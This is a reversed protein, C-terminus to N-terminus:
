RAAQQRRRTCSFAVTRQRGRDTRCPFKYLRTQADRQPYFRFGSSGAAFRRDGRLIPKGWVIVDAPSCPYSRPNWSFPKRNIMHGQRVSLVPLIPHSRHASSLWALDASRPAHESQVTRSVGLRHMLSLFDCSFTKPLRTTLELRSGLIQCHDPTSSLPPLGNIPLRPSRPVGSM